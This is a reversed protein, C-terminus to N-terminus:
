DPMRLGGNEYDNIMINRKVKDGKGDWPFNFFMNNIEALASHNSPLPSLIYVLQSAILSKLVTIKGLLTLRRLDWCSLSNRIKTLKQNYNAAITTKPNTSLWVGLAKVKDKVWKFDKDTRLHTENGINAGIWLAETKKSNM